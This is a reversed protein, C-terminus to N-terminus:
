EDGFLEVAESPFAVREGDGGFCGYTVDGRICIDDTAPRRLQYAIDISRDDADLTQGVIEIDDEFRISRELTFNWDVPVFPYTGDTLTGLSHGRDELFTELCISLERAYDEFYGLGAAEIHPTRFPVERTFRAGDGEPARPTIEIPELGAPGRAELEARVDEPVPEATGEPTITIQVMRATGFREGDAAREFRYEFQVNTEGVAVPDVGVVVTDDYRPYRSLEAHIAVPAYPVGGADVIEEVTYGLEYSLEETAEILLDFFTANHMFPGYSLEGFRVKHRLLEVM